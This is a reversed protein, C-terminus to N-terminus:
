KMLDLFQSFNIPREAEFSLPKQTNPHTFELKKAHLFTQTVEKLADKWNETLAGLRRKASGVGYLDDGVIPHNAETLHVRLQHTRGTRPQLVVHTFIGNDSIKEWATSADRGKVTKSSMKKRDRKDRGIVSRFVGSNKMVGWVIAEYTKKVERAKFQRSLEEHAKRSKAIVIVGSTGRDLRHVIGPRTTSTELFNPNNKLHHLLHHVLTTKKSTPSPHVVLGQPKNIVILTEDEYLVSLNGPVPILDLSPEEEFTCEVKDGRKLTYSAKSTKGQVLVNGTKITEQIAARSKGTQEVLFVDLRKKDDSVIEFAFVESL